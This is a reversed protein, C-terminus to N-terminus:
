QIQLCQLDLHSPEDPVESNAKLLKSSEVYYLLKTPMIKNDAKKTSYPYSATNSMFHCKLFHEEM